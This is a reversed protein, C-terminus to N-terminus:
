HESDTADQLGQCLDELSPMALVKEGSDIDDKVGDQLTFDLVFEHCPARVQPFITDLDGLADSEDEQLGFDDLPPILPPEARELLVQAADARGACM